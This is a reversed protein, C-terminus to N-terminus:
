GFVKSSLPGRLMCCGLGPAALFILGRLISVHPSVTFLWLIGLVIAGGYFRARNRKGSEAFQTARVPSVLVNPAIFALIM